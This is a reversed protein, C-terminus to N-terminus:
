RLTDYYKLLRIVDKEKKLKLKNEKKYAELEDKRGLLKYLEKDKLKIKTLVGDIELYYNSKRNFRKVQEIKGPKNYEVQHLNASFDKILKTKFGKYILSSFAGKLEPYATRILIVDEDFDKLLEPNKTKSFIASLYNKSDLPIIAGNQLVELEQTHGNYNAELDVSKEGKRSILNAIVFDEFLFPNGKFSAYRDKDSPSGGVVIVARQAIVFSSLLLFCFIPYLNKM